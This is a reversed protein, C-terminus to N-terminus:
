AQTTFAISAGLPLAHFADLHARAIVAIISYGGTTPGDPGIVIPSGGAPLQIAGVVTPSSPHVDGTARALTPGDLRTGMRNSAAGIRWTASVFADFGQADPGAIIGVGAGAGVGVGVGVGVGTGVGSGVGIVSGARLPDTLCALTSRSGLVLPAAVGGGVALYRVRLGADPEVVYEEGGRLTVVEGRETAIGVSADAVVVLRGFVEICAAGDENGVARNARRLLVPCLAGGRPVGQSAYGVRGLDQVTALGSIKKIIM